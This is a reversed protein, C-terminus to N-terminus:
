YQINQVLYYSYFSSLTLLVLFQQIKPVSDYYRFLALLPLVCLIFLFYFFIRFSSAYLTPSLGLVSSSFLGILIFLICIYFWPKNGYLLFLSAFLCCFLLLFLLYYWGLRNDIIFFIHMDDHWFYILFLTIAFTTLISLCYFRQRKHYALLSYVIINLTVLSLCFPEDFFYDMTHSLGKYFRKWYGWQAFDPLRNRMERGFRSANGPCLIFLVANFLCLELQIAYFWIIRKYRLLYYLGFVGFVIVMIACLQEMSSAIFTALLIFFSCIRTPRTEYLSKFSILGFILPFLYNTSTALWGTNKILGFPFSAFM